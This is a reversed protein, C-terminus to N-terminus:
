GESTRPSPLPPLSGTQAQHRLASLVSALPDLGRQRLTRYVSMLVAQTLAGRDSQNGYSNKRILVAPRIAREAANNDAPVAEHWLFSLTQLGYKHLRRALRAADPQQWDAVALDVVRGELRAVALDYEAEPLEGRRAHLKGADLFIRRLRRAFSPWDDQDRGAQEVAQLDRLLHPWCRQRGACAVADYAAWFDTVLMGAFEEVFFQELAPHGRSRDILYYTADAQTFCWLWHTTGHVRWGTEDAHLVAADLCARQIQEYWPTLVEALRHWMQVLGGPTVRLQLHYNLVEVIQALTSGNGYHMWASLTLLRNGLTCHPLVDPLRPEVRKQCKPCWDRHLTHQIVQAKLDPPLDESLRTRTDGTRVLKGQCDPCRPLQHTQRQDIREPRRRSSGVHGPQAGRPQAKGPRHAPPKLYPPITAPPMHAQSTVAGVQQALALLTFIIVEPPRDAFARAQPETLSGGRIAELVEHDISTTAGSM